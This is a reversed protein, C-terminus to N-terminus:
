DVHELLELRLNEPLLAHYGLWYHFKYIKDTLEDKRKSRDHTDIIQVQRILGFTRLRIIFDSAIEDTLSYYREFQSKKPLGQDKLFNVIDCAFVYWEFFNYGTRLCFIILDLYAVLFSARGIESPLVDRKEFLKFNLKVPNNLFNYIYKFDTEESLTFPSGESNEKQRNLELELELRKNKEQAVAIKITRELYSHWIEAVVSPLIDHYNDANWERCHLSQMDLRLKSRLEAKKVYPLFTIGSDSLQSILSSDIEKEVMKSNISNETIYVIVIDCTPIGDEFIVKLWSRGDRIEENDLWPEIQCKRLDTVLRGIFEKDKSSHSLFVRPRNVRHLFNM